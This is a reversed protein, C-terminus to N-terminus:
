PGKKHKWGYGDPMEIKEARTFWGGVYVYTFKLCAKTPTVM